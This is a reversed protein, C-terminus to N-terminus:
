GQVMRLWVKNIQAAEMGGWEIKKGMWKMLEGSNEEQVGEEKIWEILAEGSQNKNEAVMVSIVGIMVEPYQCEAGSIWRFGGIGNERFRGCIAQPIGCKFCVCYKDYRIGEKIKGYLEQASEVGRDSCEMLGHQEAVREMGRVKCYPCKGNWESIKVRFIEMDLEEQSRMWQMRERIKIRQEKLREYEEWEDNREGEENEENGEENGDGEENGNGEENGDGNGDNKAQCVGCIEEGEECGKRDMRGDLYEDLIERFCREGGCLEVVRDDRGEEDRGVMVISESVRGDRGARGSEQGFDRLGRPIDMHIVVRIDAIDIGLGLANTAVVLRCERGRIREFVRKKDEVERYYAKCELRSAVRKVRGVSNGYVVVKGEKYQELKRGVLGIVSEDAEEEMRVASYGVNKRTTAGRFITVMEKRLKMEEFFERKECPPLTATLMIMQTEAVFLESLRRLKRRFDGRSDLVVHCEDIVIRELRHTEKVRILHRQFEKSVASEATVLMISVGTRPRRSEWEACLIGGESCRRKLDERLSIMPIVVVTMGVDDKGMARASCLAPLMFLLSKGGGTGMVALIPSQGSMISRIAEEQIGRFQIGPGMMRELQEYVDMRRVRKWRRYEGDHDEIEWKRKGKKQLASAFQLLGHWGESARRYQQRISAVEGPGELIGRAYIMGAVHTGHGSQLDYASDGQGGEEMGDEMGEEDEKDEMFGEGKLYRRTMAIAIQRYSSINLKVGMGILSEHEILKKMRESTWKRDEAGREWLYGKSFRREYVATELQGQFPMVLWLYYMLLEGVERPLYRHIIKTSGGIRYGKHYATVFVVKGDEVMINRRGGNVTNCYRISLLETTRGPQGGSIHMLILLKEKFRGIWRMYEQVRGEKWRGGEMFRGVIRYFLWRQGDVPFGNDENDMFWYGARSESPNDVLGDWPIVPVEGGEDDDQCMLLEEMMIRRGENVLGYVGTRFQGMSFRVNQYSVVDGDWRISGGATSTYRIKMGYTRTMFMWKMATPQGTLMFRGMMKRTEDVLKRESDEKARDYAELAVLMRAFKIIASLKSTYNEATQWGKSEAEIGLMATASVMVSEYHGDDLRHDLMAICFRLCHREIGSLERLEREPGSVYGEDTIGIVDVESDESGMEDVLEDPSHHEADVVFEDWTQVQRETMRYPPREGLQYTRHIYGLIRHWVQQYRKKTSSEMRAEFPRDPDKGEEKRNIEVRVFFPCHGQVLAEQALDIVGDFTDYISKM